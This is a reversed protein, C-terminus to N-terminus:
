LRVSHFHIIKVISQVDLAMSLNHSCLPLNYVPSGTYQSKSHFIEATNSSSHICSKVEASM